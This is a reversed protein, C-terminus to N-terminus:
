IGMSEFQYNLFLLLLHVGLQLSPWSQSSMVENSQSNTKMTSEDLTDDLEVVLNNTPSVVKVDVIDVNPIEISIM